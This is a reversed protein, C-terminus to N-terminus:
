GGIEKEGAAEGKLSATGIKTLLNIYDFCEPGNVSECRWRRSGMFLTNHGGICCLAHVIACVELLNAILAQELQLVRRDALISM